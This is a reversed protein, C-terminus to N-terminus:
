RSPTNPLGGGGRDGAAISDGGGNPVSPSPHSAGCEPCTVRGDAPRIGRLDYSCHPCLGRAFRRRGPLANLWRLAAASAFAARILIAPLLLDLAMLYYNILFGEARADRVLQWLPLRSTVIWHEAMHRIAMNDKKAGDVNVVSRGIVQLSVRGQTVWPILLGWRDRLPVYTCLAHSAGFQHMATTSGFSPADYDLVTAPNTSPNVWFCIEAPFRGRASGLLLHSVLTHDRPQPRFVFFLVVVCAIVAAIGTVPHRWVVLGIRSLREVIQSMVTKYAVGVM